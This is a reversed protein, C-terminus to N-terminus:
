ASYKAVDATLGLVTTSLRRVKASSACVNLGGVVTCPVHSWGDGCNVQQGTTERLLQQWVCQKFTM